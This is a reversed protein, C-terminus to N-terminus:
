SGGATEGVLDIRTGDASVALRSLSIGQASLDALQRWAHDGPSWAYLVTGHAQLLVGDPTWAHFDGGQIGPALLTSTGARV